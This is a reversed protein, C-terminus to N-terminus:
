KMKLMDTIIKTRRQGLKKHRKWVTGLALTVNNVDKLGGDFLCKWKIPLGLGKGDWNWTDLSLHMKVARVDEIDLDTMLALCIM